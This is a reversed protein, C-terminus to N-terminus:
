SMLRIRHSTVLPFLALRFATFHIDNGTRVPRKGGAIGLRVEGESMETEEGKARGGSTTELRQGETEETWVRLGFVAPGVPARRILFM